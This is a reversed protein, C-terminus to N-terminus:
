SGDLEFYRHNVREIIHGIERCVNYFKRDNSSVEILQGNAVNKSIDKSYITMPRRTDSLFKDGLRQVEVRGESSSVWLEIKSSDYGAIYGAIVLLVSICVKTVM